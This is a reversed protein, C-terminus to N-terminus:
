VRISSLPDYYPPAAAEKERQRQRQAEAMEQSGTPARQRQTQPPPTNYGTRRSRMSPPPSSRQPPPPPSWHAEKERQRQRMARQQRGEREVFTPEHVSTGPPRIAPAQPGAVNPSIDTVPFSRKQPAPPTFTSGRQEVTRGTGLSEEQQNIVDAPMPFLDVNGFGAGTGRMDELASPALRELRAEAQQDRYGQSMGQWFAAFATQAKRAIDYAPQFDFYSRPGESVQGFGDLHVGSDIGLVPLGTQPDIRNRLSEMVFPSIGYQRGDQGIARHFPSQVDITATDMEDPDIALAPMVRGVESSEPDIGIYGTGFDNGGIGEKRSKLFPLGNESWKKTAPHQYWTTGAHQGGDRDLWAPLTISQVNFPESVLVGRDILDRVVGAGNLTAIEDDTLYGDTDEVQVGFEGLADRVAGEDKSLKLFNIGPYPVQMPVAPMVVPGSATQIVVRPMEDPHTFNHPVPIQTLDPVVPAGVGVEGGEIEATAQERQGSATVGGTQVTPIPATTGVPGYQGPVTLLVDQAFGNDVNWRANRGDIISTWLSAISGQQARTPQPDEPWGTPIDWGMSTAVEFFLDELEQPQLDPDAIAEALQTLSSAQATEEVPMTTDLSEAQQDVESGAGQRDRQAQVEAPSLDSVDTPQETPEAETGQVAIIAEVFDQIVKKARAPDNSLEAAELDGWTEHVVRAERYGQDLSNVRAADAVIGKKLTRIQAAQEGKELAKYLLEEGDLLYLLDKQLATIEALGMRRTETGITIEISEQSPDLEYQTIWDQVYQVSDAFLDRRRAIEAEAEEVTDIEEPIGARDLRRAIRRAERNQRRSEAKTATNRDDVGPNFQGRYDPPTDQRMPLADVSVHITRVNKLKYISNPNITGRPAFLAQGHREGGWGFSEVVRAPWWTGSDQSKAPDLMLFRDKKPDYGAVFMGHGAIIGSANFQPPIDGNWGSLVAPAGSAVRRKFNEFEIRHDYFLKTGDVDARELAYQLQSLTTGGARDGSLWRLDGGSLNKTGMARALMAGAAMTCNVQSYKSGDLQSIHFIRNAASAGGLVEPKPLPTAGDMGKVATNRLDWAATADYPAIREAFDFYAQQWEDLSINGARLDFELKALQAPDPTARLQRIEDVYKYYTVPDSDKLGFADIVSQKRRAAEQPSISASALASDIRQLRVQFIEQRRAAIAAALAERVDNRLPSGAPLRELQQRYFSILDKTSAEGRAIRNNIRRVGSTLAESDRQQRLTRLRAALETREPTGKKTERLRAAYHSILGGINGTEAYRAEATDDAIAGEYQVLAQKWQLQQTKDYSTQSIRRRIYALIESGSM